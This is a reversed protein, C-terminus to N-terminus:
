EAFHGTELWNTLHGILAAVQERNLHMRGFIETGEPLPVPVMGQNFVTKMPQPSDIGLWVASIGPQEHEALSSMQLSCKENYRDTFDILEFGRATKTVKGLTPKKM